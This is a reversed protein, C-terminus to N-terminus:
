ALHSLAGVNLITLQMPVKQFLSTETMQLFFSKIISHKKNVDIKVSESTTIM